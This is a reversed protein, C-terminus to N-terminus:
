KEKRGDSLAIFHNGSYFLILNCGPQPLSPLFALEKKSHAKLSHGGGM